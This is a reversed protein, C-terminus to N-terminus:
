PSLSIGSYIETELPSESEGFIKEFIWTFFYKINQKVTLILGEWQTGNSKERVANSKLIKKANDLSLRNEDTKKTKKSTQDETKLNNINANVQRYKENSTKDWSIIVKQGVVRNVDILDIATIKISSPKEGWGDTLDKEDVSKINAWSFYADDASCLYGIFTLTSHDQINLDNIKVQKLDLDKLREYLHKGEFQLDFHSTLNMSGGPCKSKKLAILLDEFTAYPKLKLEVGNQSIDKVYVTIEEINKSQNESM